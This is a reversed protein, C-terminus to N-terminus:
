GEIIGGGIVNGCNDYFVTSQGPAPFKQPEDFTVKLIKGPLVNVCCQAPESRYRIKALAKFESPPNKFKIFNPTSLFIEKKLGNKIPSLTIFNNKADIKTVYVPEGLAIGLGKRQGITYNIIGKHTGIKEGSDNIFFGPLSEKQTYNEIFKGHSINKIFCIDQSESKQAVKLGLKKAFERVEIKEYDDLPTLMHSLQHQNLRYLFYSQDKKSISKKLLYRRSANDFVIKAYHGTAVSDFGNELAYDLMKGFKITQNCKICPNPTRGCLYENAFYNIVSAKFEQSLDLTIHKIGLQHAVDKADNVSSEDYPHTLILTIGSVNYGQNILLAATTSSDVGGSMGILVKKM